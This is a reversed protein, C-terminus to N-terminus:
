STSGDSPLSPIQCLLLSSPPSLTSGPVQTDPLIHAISPYLYASLFGLVIRKRRLDIYKGLRLSMM